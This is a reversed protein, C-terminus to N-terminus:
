PAASPCTIEHTLGLNFAYPDLTDQGQLSIEYKKGCTAAFDQAVLSPSFTNGIFPVPNSQDPRFDYIVRQIGTGSEITILQFFVLKSGSNLEITFPDVHLRCDNPASIYCGAQIPSAFVDVEARVQNSRNYLFFAAAVAVFLGILLLVRSKM